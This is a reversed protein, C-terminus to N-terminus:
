MKLLTTQKRKNRAKYEIIFEDPYHEMHDKVCSYKIVDTYTTIATESTYVKYNFKETPKKGRVSGWRFGQKELEVMLSNYDEQTETHYTTM